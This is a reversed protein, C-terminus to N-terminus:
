CRPCRAAASRGKSRRRGPRRLSPGRCLPLPLAPPDGLAAARGLLRGFGRAALTGLYDRLDDSTADAISGHRRSRRPSTPSTARMPPSRTAAAGREAALMDLFLEILAPRIDKARRRAMRLGASRRAASHKAFRDPPITVTIERPKPDFWNALMFMRRLRPRGAPRDVHSFPVPEAHCGRTRLGGKFFPSILRRPTGLNDAGQGWCRNRGHNIDATASTDGLKHCVSPIAASRRVGPSPRIICRSAGLGTKAASARRTAASPAARDHEDAHHPGALGRDAPPERQPEADREDVGIRLDLLGAPM